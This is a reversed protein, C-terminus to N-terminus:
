EICRATNPYLSKKQSVNLYTKLYSSICRMTDWLMEILSKLYMSIGSLHRQSVKLYESIYKLYVQSVKLYMSICKLYLRSLISLHIEGYRVMDWFTDGSNIVYRLDIEHYRLHYRVYRLTDRPIECTDWTDWTYRLYCVYFLKIDTAMVVIKYHM